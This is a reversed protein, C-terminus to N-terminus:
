PSAKVYFQTAVVTSGTGAPGAQTERVIGGAAILGSTAIRAMAKRREAAPAGTTSLRVGSVDTSARENLRAAHISFCPYTICRVGNDRLIRFAGEPKRPSSSASWVDSVILTALDPFGEVRGTVITGRALARGAAVLGGLRGRAEESVPLGSLDLEAVYCESRPAPACPTTPRNVLRIWVGGCMPSPCARPDERGLYYSSVKSPPDGAASAAGVLAVVALLVVTVGRSIM